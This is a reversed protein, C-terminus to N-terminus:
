HVQAAKTLKVQQAQYRTILRQSKEVSIAQKVLRQARKIDNQALAIQSGIFYIQGQLNNDDGLQETVIQQAKALSTTAQELHKLGLHSTSLQLLTAATRYSNPQPQSLLIDLAQQSFLLGQEYDGKHNYLKAVNSTAIAVRTHESGYLKTRIALSELLLPEAQQYAKSDLYLSGLNNLTTSYSPTNKGIYKADLALLKKYFIEAKDYNALDHYINALTNTINAIEPHDPDLTAEALALAELALPLTDPQVGIYAALNIYSTLSRIYSQHRKGYIAEKEKLVQLYLDKAKQYQGSDSYTNAINHKIRVAQTSDFAAMNNLMALALQYQKLALEFKDGQQYLLGLHNYSTVYQSWHTGDNTDIAQKLRDEAQQWQSLKIHVDGLRNLATLKETLVETSLQEIIALSQQYSDKAEPYLGLTEYVSAITLLLELQVEPQGKLQTSIKNHGNQLIERATTQPKAKNPNAVHFIDTLFASVQQSKNSEAEAQLKALEAQNRLQSERFGFGVLAIVIMIGILTFALNRQVFRTFLYSPENARLSIPRKALQATLDDVLKDVSPYRHEPAKSLAKDLIRRLDDNSIATLDIENATNARHGTLLEHLLLALGYIDTSTTLPKGSRQEPSAYDWTIAKVQPATVNTDTFTAIGFDVLHPEGYRDVIINQPKIDCHIVRNQHAYSVAACVKFFIAFKDSDNLQATRCYESLSQGKILEMVLYLQNEQYCGGDFVRAINPHQLQALIQRETQFKLNIDQSLLPTKITKIAVEQEFTGDTRRAQYVQGMGGSGILKDITFPGLTTGTLDINTLNLKASDIVLQTVVSTDNDAYLLMQSLQKALALNGQYQQKIFDDRRQEPLDLAQDFNQQLELWQEPTM